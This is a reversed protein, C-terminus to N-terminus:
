FKSPYLIKPKVTEGPQLVIGAKNLWYESVTQLDLPKGIDGEKPILLDPPYMGLMLKLLEKFVMEVKRVRANLEDNSEIANNLASRQNREMMGMDDKLQIVLKRSSEIRIEAANLTKFVDQIATMSPIDDTYFNIPKGKGAIPPITGQQM